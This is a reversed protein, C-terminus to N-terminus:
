QLRQLQKESATFKQAQVFAKEQKRETTSIENNETKAIQFNKRGPESCSLMWKPLVLFVNISLLFELVKETNYNHIVNKVTM